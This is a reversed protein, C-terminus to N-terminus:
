GIVQGYVEVLQKAHNDWTYFDQVTRQGELAIEWWRDHDGTLINRLAAVLADLDRPPVLVGNKGNRIFQSPGEGIVGVTLLGVAMAELYAIGFAERYSPLVFIENDALQNFIESHRIPGVFKVKDALGLDRTLKLLTKRQQGEGIIRYTWHSVGEGQLRALALLTLDIGKGEQLNSVSVFRRPGNAFASRDLKFPPITIGNPVIQFNRDSGIYGKFFERIPEGVLIVRDAAALAPRLRRKQYPSHLFQPHMNIGHITVVFPLQLRRAVRAAIPILGETQVHIVDAALAHIIHELANEISWDSVLDTMPRLILRPLTPVRMMKLAALPFAATCVDGRTMKGAFRQCRRAPWPRVVLVGVKCSARTVALASDAVFAGAADGPRNPFWPTLVVVNIM